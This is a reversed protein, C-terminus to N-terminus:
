LINKAKITRKLAGVNDMAIRTFPEKIVPLPHLHHLPAKTTGAPGGKQCIPSSACVKNVDRVVGLWDMRTRIAQVTCNSGFNGAIPSKTGHKVSEAESSHSYSVTKDGPAPKTEGNIVM